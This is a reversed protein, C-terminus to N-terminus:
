LEIKEDESFARKATQGLVEHWRMPSVGDGPRKTTLNEETFAEGAAIARRAVISKRAIAKNKAESSTVHKRGDGLAQETNRVARVMAALEAPDLSAKHDPGELTKDLTFHKEIVCAGLAVAAIDAEWGLTHDSYGVACGFHSALDQMARLNADAFPTPYETNCHLLTIDEVGGDELVSMADEIEALTSMGTSLIVPKKLAAIRELYPLNTIEGSPIKYVPLELSALFDISDLDFPTSLYEIGIEECYAKLERHGDFGFHIRRVMELQSEGAGTQAKQYEAKEAFKSVVLEPVATQYKVIDAGATKAALAMKKARALSGNHNVGAEAIILVSMYNGGTRGTGAPGSRKEPGQGARSGTNHRPPRSCRWVAACTTWSRMDMWSNESVPYVGVRGGAARVDAIIDTFPIPENYALGDIVSPEVVYVGTNTLFNMEPKETIGSIDGDGGLEVVGYPITFHKVACVMTIVNGKEKHYQYIDGFDADILIDCNTLFFTQTVKGKLLSLGGGTGLPTDEDVYDVTYDKQLDNFYSKIMSKKYNVIMTFASCGVDAFRHIIHEVIPMEGIPILPKPLIKTYPYLRTGWGGARIVVPACAKKHTDIDLGGAFVVDQVRGRKDLLPLAGIGHELLATKARARAEMPLAYPSYNAAERVPGELPLSKLIYRRIDGDTVVARLVGEPAVFLVGLGTEDLKRMADLVSIDETIFLDDVRM